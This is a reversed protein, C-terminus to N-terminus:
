KILSSMFNFIDRSKNSVFLDIAAAIVTAQDLRIFMDVKNNALNGGIAHLFEHCPIQLPLM